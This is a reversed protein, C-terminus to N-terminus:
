SDMAGLEFAEQISDHRTAVPGYGARFFVGWVGEPLSPRWVLAIEGAPAAITIRAETDNFPHGVKVEWDNAWALRAGYALMRPVDPLDGITRLVTGPKKVDGASVRPKTGKMGKIVGGDGRRRPVVTMEAPKVMTKGADGTYKAVAATVARDETQKRCWARAAPTSEHDHGKHSIAM